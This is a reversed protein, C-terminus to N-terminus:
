FIFPYFAFNVSLFIFTFLTIEIPNFINIVRIIKNPIISNIVIYMRAGRLPCVKFHLTGLDFVNAFFVFGHRGNAFFVVKRNEEM